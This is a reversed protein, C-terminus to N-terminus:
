KEMNEQFLLFSDHLLNYIDQGFEERFYDFLIQWIIKGLLTFESTDASLIAIKNFITDFTLILEKDTINGDPSHKLLLQLQNEIDAIFNDIIKKRAEVLQWRNLKVCGITYDARRWNNLDKEKSLINDIEGDRKVRFFDSAVDIEPHLLSPCEALLEASDAKFKEFDFKGEPTLPPTKQKKLPSILEFKDGKPGNCDNCALFLNTWEYGLWYYGGKKPRYHEVTGKNSRFKQTTEDVPIKSECFACKDHYLDRLEKIIAHNYVSEDFKHNEKKALLQKQLEENEYFKEKLANPIVEFDKNVKRM